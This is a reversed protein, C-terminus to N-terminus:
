VMLGSDGDFDIYEQVQGDCEGLFTEYLQLARFMPMTSAPVNRFAMISDVYLPVENKRFVLVETIYRSSRHRVQLRHNWPGYVLKLKM